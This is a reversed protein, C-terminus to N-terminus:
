KVMMLIMGICRKRFARIANVLRTIEVNELAAMQKLGISDRTMKSFKQMGVLFGSVAEIPNIKGNSTDVADIIKEYNELAKMNNEALNRKKLVQDYEFKDIIEKALIKESKVQSGQFKNENIKIKAEDLFVNIQEDSLLNGTLKKVEDFCKALSKITAM